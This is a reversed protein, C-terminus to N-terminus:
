EKYIEGLRVYDVKGSGLLPMQPLVKISKPLYLESVGLERFKLIVDCREADKNNTFAIIQEGKREDPFALVGVHHTPWLRQLYSEVQTLSVMEGAIKAFRKARGKIFLYGDDDITVIDGTDYWGDNDLGNRQWTLPECCPDIYGQMVNPGRVLLRGGVEIGPVPILQSEIKPLLRGVSKARYEMTTNMALVPAAETTGYGEFIRIGFRENWLQKTEERLSEAGAFVLRTNFFDYPHAAKAYGRLFTDTGFLITANSEYVLEPIIRYHLPSPYLFTKMGSLLPLLTGATLGFSHFYPLANFVTDTSNFNVKASVQAINALLNAHSLVVGKPKGESGSTFLIVGPKDAPHLEKLLQSQLWKKYKLSKIFGLFKLTLSLEGKLDELFIVEVLGKFSEILTQLKAQTIFRKSTIVYNIKAIKLAHIINETGSSFNLMAPVLRGYHLGLFTAVGAISNPLLIGVVQIDSLTDKVRFTKKFFKGLILSKRLLSINTIPNWEADLLAVQHKGHREVNRIFNIAINESVITTGFMLETMLDYLCSGYKQRRARRTPLHDLSLPTLPRAPLITIKIKPFFTRPAKGKLLSFPSYTAGEIRIPIVQAKSEIALLAPGEYVKMLSGTVTLRGEPFIVCRKGARVENILQKIGFPSRPDLTVMNIFYKAPRVWWKKAVFSNIAFLPNDPLFAALLPADLYSTHNVIIISPGNVQRYNELGELEVRYLFKLLGRVFPQVLERPFLRCLVLAVLANSLSLLLFVTYISYGFQFLLSAILAAMVMFLANWINNSAIIQAREHKPARAQLLAYLPVIFFGGSIAVLFLDIFIRWGAFTTVAAELGIINAEKLTHSGFVLDATFVSIAIASLPVYKISLEDKLARHSLFSGLAIGISFLALLFSAGLDGAGFTTKAFLPFQSSFTAGIAWFWSIGLILLFIEKSRWALPFVRCTSRLPNFSLPRDGNAAGGKPLGFSFLFGLLATLVMIGSIIGFRIGSRDGFGAAIQGLLVALFTGMEIFANAEILKKQEVLEPIVSYKIPGFFTSHVGLLFLASFLIPYHSWYFGLIGLLIILVEAGKIFIVINRKPFKDALEGASASLLFFPLMFLAMSLNALLGQNASSSKSTVENGVFILFFIFLTKFLNDNFAGLFQISFLAFFPAERIV